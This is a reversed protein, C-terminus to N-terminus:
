EFSRVAKETISTFFIRNKMRHLEAFTPRISDDNIEYDRKMYVDIDLIIIARDSEVKELAQTINAAIGSEPENIVVRNLFSSVSAPLGDPITPPAALYEAFEKLPLNLRNIYRVAVRTIFEPSATEVYLNWLEYAAPFVEDWSTYPKLRSFTFGDIRFQAVNCGDESEFRFGRLEKEKITSTFLKGKQLGFIAESVKQEKVNPFSASLQEKLISFQGVRFDPSLKVRFDIIAETIPANPLHREQAM